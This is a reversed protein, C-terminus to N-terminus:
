PKVEFDNCIDMVAHDYGIGYPTTARTPLRRRWKKVKAAIETEPSPVPAASLLVSLGCSCEGGRHFVGSGPIWHETHRFSKEHEGCRACMVQCGPKHTAYERLQEEPTM